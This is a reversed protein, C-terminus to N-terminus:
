DLKFWAESWHSRQMISWHDGFWLCSFLLVLWIVSLSIPFCFSVASSCWSASFIAFAASLMAFVVIRISWWWKISWRGATVAKMFSTGGLRQSSKWTTTRAVRTPKNPIPAVITATKRQTDTSCKVAQYSETYIMLIMSEIRRLICICHTYM